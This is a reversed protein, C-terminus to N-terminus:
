YNYGANEKWEEESIDEWSFSCNEYYVEKDYEDLFIPRYDEAYDNLMDNGYDSINKDSYDSPFAIFKQIDYGCYGISFTFCIYRKKM